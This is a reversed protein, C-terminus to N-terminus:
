SEFNILLHKRPYPISKKLLGQVFCHPELIVVNSKSSTRSWKVSLIERCKDDYAEDSIDHEIASKHM